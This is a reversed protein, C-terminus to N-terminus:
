KKAFIHDYSAVLKRARQALLAPDMGPVYLASGIGFGDAGALAWSAFSDAQVGGVVYCRTDGPLIARISKLGKVGLMDGPFFKLADAGAGLAAMSETASMVGPVSMMGAQKTAVIVKLNCNPSVILTAGTLTVDEVQKVTLVTGAGFIAQTACAEVMLGISTLPDPSNLPVEIKTIGAEILTNAACVAEAPKIGRLIAILERHRAQTLSSVRWAGAFFNCDPWVCRRPM